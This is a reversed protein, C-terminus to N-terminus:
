VHARGIQLARLILVERPPGFLPLERQGVQGRCARDLLQDVAHEALAEVHRADRFRLAATNRFEERGGTDVVIVGDPVADLAGILRLYADDSAAENVGPRKGPSAPRTM